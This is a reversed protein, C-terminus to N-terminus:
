AYPAFLLTSPKRFIESCVLLWSEPVGLDLSLALSPLVGVAFLFNAPMYCLPKWACRRKAETESVTLRLRSTKSIHDIHASM